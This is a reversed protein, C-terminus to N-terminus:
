REQALMGDKVAETMLPPMVEHGPMPDMGQQRMWDFVEQALAELKVGQEVQARAPMERFDQSDVPVVRSPHMQAQRTLVIARLYRGFLETAGQFPRTALMAEAVTPFEALYESAAYPGMRDPSPDGYPTQEQLEQWVTPDAEWQREAEVQVSTGRVQAESMERGLERLTLQDVDNRNVM